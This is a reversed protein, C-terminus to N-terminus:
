RKRLLVTLIWTESAHKGPEIRYLAEFRRYFEEALADIETDSKASPGFLHMRFTSDGFGRLYGTYHHAYTEPDGLQDAYVDSSHYAAPLVEITEIEFAEALDKEEQLPQRAEDASLFWLSFLFHDLVTSDLMGDDAMSQAVRQVARYLGRASVATGHAEGADPVAGLTNVLLFGGPQLERARCRLFTTRDTKAQRRMEARTEGQLDAFWITGPANLRMGVSLWHSAAFCTALAVSGPAAMPQYFSGISAETRISGGVAAYGEPGSAHGFLSNWDNGPQDAHCVVIAGEPVLSRYAEVSPRVADIASMGPGCGYDMIRLEPEVRGIREM